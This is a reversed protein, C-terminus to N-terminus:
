NGLKRMLDFVIPLRTEIDSESVGTFNLRIYEGHYQPQTFFSDGPMFAVGKELTAALLRNLDTARKLRLWFFMGGQPLDWDGFPAACDILVSQMVDRRKRYSSRLMQLRMAMSGEDSLLTAVMGQALRNSHLDAAQKLKLLHDCFETSCALYGIRTGPILIKSTTGLYVWKAEKLYSVIPAPPGERGYFLSRYPDDEILVTDAAYRDLIGAILRREDENFCYGSPNQFTPNLYIFKPRRTALCNELEGLDLRGDNGSRVPIIDAQFLSFVQIAAMYTPAEVVVPAGPDIWLKSILDLGQQSGSTVLIQDTTCKVGLGHLHEQLHMRLGLEGESPGYQLHRADVEPLKLNEFAEKGPLGGAFSTVSKSQCHSLITRAASGTLFQIRQAYHM